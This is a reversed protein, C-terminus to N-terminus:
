ICIGDRRTTGAPLENNFKAPFDDNYEPMIFLEDLFRYM